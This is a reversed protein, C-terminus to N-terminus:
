AKIDLQAGLYPHVSPTTQGALSSILDGKTQEVGMAMKAVSIGAQQQVNSQNLVVSMAAIDM